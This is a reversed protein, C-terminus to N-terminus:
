EAGGAMVCVVVPRVKEVLGYNGQFDGHDSSFAVVTDKTVPLADLGTMLQLTGCRTCYMLGSRCGRKCVLGVVCTRV